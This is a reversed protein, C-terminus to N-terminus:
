KGLITSILLTLVEAPFHHQLSYCSLLPVTATFFSFELDKEFVASVVDTVYFQLACFM